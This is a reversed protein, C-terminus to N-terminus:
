TQNARTRVQETADRRMRAPTSGTASRFAKGFASASRYGVGAAIDDISGTTSTLLEAAITMRTRTVFDAVGMGTTASFHRTLTARSVGAIRALEAITWNRQPESVVANVVARLGADPVATWPASPMTAAPHLRGDGRLVLTLVAECLSALMAGAGPGDFTAERRILDGLLLLPSGTVLDFSAHMVDPLGAFLMEGAGPRYLYHGCFLDVTPTGEDRVTEMADGQQREASLTPTDAIVRMVHRQGRSLVLVDGARLDVTRNGIEAKCHGELLVHFPVNGPAAPPNDLVYSGSVLCRLDVACDLRAMRILTSIADM